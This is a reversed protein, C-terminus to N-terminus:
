FVLRRLFAAVARRMGWRDPSLLYRDTFLLKQILKPRLTSDEFAYVASNRSPSRVLRAPVSGLGDLELNVNPPHRAHEGTHVRVGGLSIDQCRWPMQAGDVTATAVENTFYREGSRRKPPEIAPAVGALITLIFVVSVVTNSQILGDHHLPATADFATYGAGALLAALLFGQFLVLRWHLVPRDKRLAKDTVKFRGKSGAVALFNHKIWMPALLTWIADSVFLM